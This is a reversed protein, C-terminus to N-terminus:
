EDIETMSALGNLTVVIQNLIDRGVIMMDNHKDAAVRVKPFSHPGLRITVEYIDVISGVGTISRMVLQSTKRAKLQRLISLPILTGDSGSDIMATLVIPECDQGFPQVAVEVVPLPPAYDTDYEYTYM